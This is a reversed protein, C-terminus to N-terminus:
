EDHIEEQGPQELAAILARLSAVLQECKERMRIYGHAERHLIQAEEEQLRLKLLPLASTDISAGCLDLLEETVEMSELGLYHEMLSTLSNQRPPISQETM